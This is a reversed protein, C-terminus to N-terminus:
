DRSCGLHRNALLSRRRQGIVEVVEDQVREIMPMYRAERDRYDIAVLGEALYEAEDGFGGLGGDASERGLAVADGAEGGLGDGRAGEEVSAGCGFGKGGAGEGKEDRGGCVGSRGQGPLGWYGGEDGGVEDQAGVVGGQVEGEFIGSRVAGAHRAVVVAVAASAERDSVDHTTKARQGHCSFWTCCKLVAVHHINGKRM